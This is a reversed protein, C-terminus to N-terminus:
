RRTKLWKKIEHKTLGESADYAKRTKDQFKQFELLAKGLGRELVLTDAQRERDTQSELDMFLLWHRRFFGKKIEISIHAFEHAICGTFGDRPFELIEKEIYLRYGRMRPRVAMFFGYRKGKVFRYTIRIRALEPFHNTILTEAIGIAESEKM